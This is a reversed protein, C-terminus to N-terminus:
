QYFLAGIYRNSVVTCCSRFWRSFQLAFFLCVFVCVQYSDKQDQVTATDASIPRLNAVTRETKTLWRLFDDFDTEFQGSKLLAAQLKDKREEIKQALQSLELEARSLRSQLEAASVPDDSVSM